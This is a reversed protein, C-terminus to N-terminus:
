RGSKLFQRLWAGREDPTMVRGTTRQYKGLAKRALARDVERLKLAEILNM